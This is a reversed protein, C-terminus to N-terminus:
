GIEIIIDSAPVISTTETERGANYEDLVSLTTTSEEAEVPAATTDSQEPSTVPVTEIVEGFINTVTEYEITQTEAATETTELPAATTAPEDTILHLERTTTQNKNAGKNREKIDNACSKGAVIVLAAAVIGLVLSILKSKEM